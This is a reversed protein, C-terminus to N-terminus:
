ITGYLYNAIFIFSNPNTVTSAPQISVITGAWAVVITDM